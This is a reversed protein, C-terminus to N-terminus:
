RRFFSMGLVPACAASEINPNDNTHYLQCAAGFHVNAHSKWPISWTASLTGIGALDNSSVNVTSDFGSKVFAYDSKYFWGSSRNISFSDYSLANYRYAMNFSSGGELRHSYIGGLYFGKVNGDGPFGNEEDVNDISTAFAGANLAWQSGSEDPAFSYKVWLAPVSEIDVGIDVDDSVGYAMSVSYTPFYNNDIQAENSPLSAATDRVTTPTVTCAQIFVVSFVVFCYQQLSLRSVNNLM